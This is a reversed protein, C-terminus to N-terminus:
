KGLPKTDSRVAQIVGDLGLDVFPNEEAATLSSKFKNYGDQVEAKLQDASVKIGWEALTASSLELAYQFKEAGAKGKLEKDALQVARNTVIDIIGLTDKQKLKKVYPVILGLVASGATLLVITLIQIVVSAVENQLTEVM